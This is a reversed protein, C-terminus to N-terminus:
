QLRPSDGVRTDEGQQGSADQTFESLTQTSVYKACKCHLKESFIPGNKPPIGGATAGSPSKTKPPFALDGNVKNLTFNENTCGVLADSIHL